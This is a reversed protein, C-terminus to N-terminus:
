PASLGFGQMITLAQPTKLWNSLSVASQDAAKLLVLHHAVRQYSTENIPLIKISTKDIQKVLTTPVLAADAAGNLAYQLAQSANEATLLKGHPLPHLGANELAQMAAMGYPAHRPNAIAIKLNKNEDMLTGIQSLTPEDDGRWILSLTGNAIAYKPGQTKGASELRNVTADDASLYLEFPAGHLIQTTLLGSSAFSVLPNPNGTEEIYADALKPWLTRFSSALAVVAPTQEAKDQNKDDAQLHFSTTCLAFVLLLSGLFRSFASCFRVPSTRLATDEGSLKRHAQNPM